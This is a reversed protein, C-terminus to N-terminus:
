AQGGCRGDWGEGDSQQPLDVGGVAPATPHLESCVVQSCLVTSEHMPDPM